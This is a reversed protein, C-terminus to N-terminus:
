HENENALKDGFNGVKASNGSRASTNAAPLPVVPDLKGSEKSSQAAAEMDVGIPSFTGNTISDRTRTRLLQKFLRNLTPAVATRYFCYM